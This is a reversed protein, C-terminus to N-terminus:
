RPLTSCALHYIRCPSVRTFTNRYASSLIRSIVPKCRRRREVAPPPGRILMSRATSVILRFDPPFFPYRAPVPGHWVIASIFTAPLPALIPAAVFTTIHLVPAIEWGLSRDANKKRRELLSTTSFRWWSSSLQPSSLFNILLHIFSSYDKNSEFLRLRHISPPSISM